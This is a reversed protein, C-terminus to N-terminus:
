DGGHGGGGHGGDGGNGKEHGQGHHHRHGAPAVAATVTVISGEAVRGSPQVSVVTGAPQRHTVLQVVRPRLGLGALQQRVTGAPRGLLAAANVDVMAPGPTGPGPSARHSAAAVPPRAPSGAARDVLWGAIAVLVAAALAAV